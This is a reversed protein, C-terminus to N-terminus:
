HRTLTVARGARSSDIAAQLIRVVAAAELAPVPNPADARIADRLAEYYRRYDGVETSVAYPEPGDRGATHVAPAIPDVGWGPAGPATGRALAAEQTDVGYKSFSGRTGHASFRPGPTVVLSSGHLVVRREGEYLLVVHFYDTAGGGARQATLDAWLASPEGFLQLAQDVLHSGLDYWTGAGPGRRERWRDRLAPRYRDFRSELYMPDGLLGDAIASRLTLFDADWRRNHFVSLVIGKSAARAAIDRADDYTVTFPKEIVVHRGADIASRALAAHTPTPTAIVILAAGGGDLAEDVTAVVRVGPEAAAVDDRRSSVITTLRLGEVSRILPVHFTRGAYGYGVLTVALEPEV